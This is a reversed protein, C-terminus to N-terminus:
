RSRCIGPWTPKGWVASVPAAAGVFPTLQSFQPMGVCLVRALDPNQTDTDVDWGVANTVIAVSPIFLKTM